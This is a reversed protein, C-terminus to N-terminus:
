HYNFSCLKFLWEVQTLIPLDVGCNYHYCFLLVINNSDSESHKKKEALTRYFMSLWDYDVCIQLAQADDTPTPVLIIITLTIM